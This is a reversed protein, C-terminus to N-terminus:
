FLSSFSLRPPPYWHLVSRLLPSLRLKLILGNISPRVRDLGHEWRSLIALYLFNSTYFLLVGPLSLFLSVFYSFSYHHFEMAVIFSRYSLLSMREDKRPCIRVIVRPSSLLSLPSLSPPPCRSLYFDILQATHNLRNSFSLFIFAILQTTKKWPIILCFDKDFLRSGM